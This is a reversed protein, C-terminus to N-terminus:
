PDASVQKVSRALVIGGALAVLPGSLILFRSSSHNSINGAMLTAAVEMGALIAIVSGSVQCVILFGQRGAADGGRVMALIALLLVASGLILIPYGAILDTSLGDASIDFPRFVMDLASGHASGEWALFLVGVVASTAGALAPFWDIRHEPDNDSDPLFLVSGFVAIAAGTLAIWAGAAVDPANGSITEIRVIFILVAVLGGLARGLAFGSRSPRVLFSLGSALVILGVGGTVPGAGALKPRAGLNPELWSMLAAVVMIIGGIKVVLSEEARLSTLMPRRPSAEGLQVDVRSIRSDAAEGM